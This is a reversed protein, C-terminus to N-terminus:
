VEVEVRVGCVYERLADAEPLPREADAAALADSVDLESEDITSEGVEPANLIPPVDAKVAVPFSALPTVIVGAIVGEQVIAPPTPETEGETAPEVVNVAVVLPAPVRVAVSPLMVADTGIVTSPIAGVIVNTAGVGAFAASWFEFLALM